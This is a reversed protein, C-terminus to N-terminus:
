SVDMVREVESLPQGCHEVYMNNLKAKTKLIEDAVIQIDSAMGQAGGSPQHLMVKANPLAYRKGPAGGALLLSGMSAAQGMCVTNVEPTIYQMTDYIALGATVSGGPSNIYIQIDKEPDEAELFLMQAVLADAVADDVGTGLFIIRERLLRSYIDFARDGRGSQEVVTPLPGPASVPMAARWRNQIPHHSRADIM